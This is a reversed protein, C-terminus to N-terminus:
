QDNLEFVEVSQRKLEGKKIFSSYFQQLLYFDENSKGGTWLKIRWTGQLHKITPITVAAESQSM